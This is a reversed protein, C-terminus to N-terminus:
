PIVMKQFKIPAIAFMRASVARANALFVRDHDPKSLSNLNRALAALCDNSGGATMTTNPTAVSASIGSTCAARRGSLRVELDFREGHQEAAAARPQFRRQQRLIQQQEAPRM